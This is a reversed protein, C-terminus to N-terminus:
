NFKVRLSTGKENLVRAKFGTAPLKVGHNPLEEFFYKKTDDFVPQAKQGRIYSPVGNTHLTMSDAKRKSFPADYMQVRARWPEGTAINIIPRPHADIIVNRGSGPHQSQNNDPVSTDWYSILLGTQYAYHEVWDPRTNMFGFNYPGTKLYQDYSTYSRHGMIYYHSAETTTTAGVVSFGDFQWLGSDTEADDALIQTDDATVAVDDLFLGPMTVGGDTRYHFRFQITQGDFQDLPVVLDTWDAQEGDIAPRGATDTGIPEGGVTGDLDTWTQGGDTSAQLYAYDYGEEISYRIKSTLQTGTAETLDLETTMSSVLDDGAGSFFQREGSAPAGNDTVVDKKPLVVVAAQPKKTNYEQPGLEMVRKDSHLVAEYDLWGMQLKEWAGLDGPRTGLPEGKANLRSQAMLTWYENSNDGGGSTDYADPLGLDHGYEHVFVSLGGNEPQVTYDGVWIGTDGIEAGGLPNQEPGTLGADTGFAYWRHSWIADEGYTPDGDEEGGGAHVIQFHDIYGDPENFDGDGDFDYRDWQDYEALTAMIQEDSRGAARQDEVWQNVADQVLYWAGADERGYRAQNYPVKVWDSVTGDVTYRGSSQTEYYTKVSEAGRGTAFYIDEYHERNFDEQWITSNDDPGPQPIENHLPGDFRLPGPTNPDTDQDPYDPHREDGFEALIVFIKDAREQSLEVYQDQHKKKGKRAMQQRARPHSQAAIQAPSGSEGMKVVTSSGRQQPTAEGSVVDAVAAERLERRKEELPHPFDDVRATTDAGAVPPAPEAAVPASWVLSGSVVLGFGLLGTMM